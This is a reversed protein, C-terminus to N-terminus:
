EMNELILWGPVKYTKGTFTGDGNNELVSIYGDSGDYDEWTSASYLASGFRAIGNEDFLGPFGDRKLSWDNAPNMSEETITFMATESVTESVSVFGGSANDVRYEFTDGYTLIVESGPVIDCKELPIIHVLNEHRIIEARMKDFEEETKGHLLFGHQLFREPLKAIDPLGKTNDLNFTITEEQTKGDSFTAVARLTITSSIERWGSGGYIYIILTFDNDASGKRFSIGKWPAGEVTYFDVNEQLPLKSNQILFYGDDTYFDVSELNEGDCKLNISVYIVNGDSYTSWYHTQESLLDVERLAISGDPQQETAYAKLSFNNENHPPMLMSGFVILCIVAAAAALSAAAKFLPRKKHEKAMAKHFVRNKVEDSLQITNFANVIKDNKM